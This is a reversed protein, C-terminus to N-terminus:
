FYDAILINAPEYGPPSWDWDFGIWTKFALPAEDKQAMKSKTIQIPFKVRNNIDMM